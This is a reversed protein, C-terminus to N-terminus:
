KTQAAAAKAESLYFIPYPQIQISTPDTLNTHLTINTQCPSRNNEIGLNLIELFALMARELWILDKLRPTELHVSSRTSKFRVFLPIVREQLAEELKHVPLNKDEILDLDDFPIKTMDEFMVSSEEGAWVKRGERIDREFKELEIAYSRVIPWHQKIADAGAYMLEEGTRIDVKRPKTRKISSGTQGSFSCKDEKPKPRFVEEDAPVFRSCLDLASEFITIGFQSTDTHGLVAMWVTGAPVVETSNKVNTKRNCTIRWAFREHIRAWPEQKRFQACLEFLPQFLGPDLKSEVLASPFENAETAMGFEKELYLKKLSLFIADMGEAESLQSVRTGCPNLSVYLMSSLKEHPTTFFAPKRQTGSMPSLMADLVFQHLTEFTPFESSTNWSVITPSPYLSVLVSAYPRCLTESSEGDRRSWVRLKRIVLQWVEQEAMELKSIRADIKKGCNQALEFDGTPIEARSNEAGPGFVTAHKKELVVNEGKSEKQVEIEGNEDGESVELRDWKEYVESLGPM